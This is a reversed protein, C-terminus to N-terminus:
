IEMEFINKIFWVLEDDNIILDISKHGVFEKWRNLVDMKQARGNFDQGDFSSGGGYIKVENVDVSYEPLEFMKKLENRYEQSIFWKNYNVNFKKLYRKYREIDINLDSQVKRRINSKIHSAAWNLPDRLIIIKHLKLDDQRNPIIGHNPEDYDEYTYIYHDTIDGAKELSAACNQKINNYVVYSKKHKAIWFAIAHGGSRTLHYIQYIM